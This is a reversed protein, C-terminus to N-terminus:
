RQASAQARVGLIYRAIRRAEERTLEPHPPMPWPSSGHQGRRIVAAIHEVAQRDGRYAAAVDAFAPGAKPYDNEHCIYCKNAVMLSRVDAAPGAPAAVSASAAALAAAVVMTRM